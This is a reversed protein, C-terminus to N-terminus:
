LILWIHRFSTFAQIQTQLLMRSNPSVLWRMYATVDSNECPLSWIANASMSVLMNKKLIKYAILAQGLLGTESTIFCKEHEFCRLMFYNSSSKFSFQQFIINTNAKFSESTTNIRCIFTLIGVIISVKVNTFLVFTMSMYISYSFLKAVEPGLQM